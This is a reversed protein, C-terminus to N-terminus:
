IMIELDVYLIVFISQSRTLMMQLIGCDQQGTVNLFYTSLLRSLIVFIVYMVKKYDGNKLIAIAHCFAM